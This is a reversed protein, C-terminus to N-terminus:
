HAAGFQLLVKETDFENNNFSSLPTTRIIFSSLTNRNYNNLFLLGIDEGVSFSRANIVYTYSNEPDFLETILYISASFVMMEDIFYMIEAYHSLTTMDVRLSSFSREGLPNLLNKLNDFNQDSYITMFIDSGYHLEIRNVSQFNDAAMFLRSTNQFFVFSYLILVTTPLTILLVYFYTRIPRVVENLDTKEM